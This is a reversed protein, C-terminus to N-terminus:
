EVPVVFDILLEDGGQVEIQDSQCVPCNFTASRVETTQNCSRCLLQLGTEIIELRTTQLVTHLRLQDFSFQVADAMVGSWPGIRLVIKSVQAIHRQQMEQMVTDIVAQAIPLEHM